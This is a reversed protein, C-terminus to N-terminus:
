ANLVTSSETSDMPCAGGNRGVYEAVVVKALKQEAAVVGARKADSRPDFDDFGATWGSDM